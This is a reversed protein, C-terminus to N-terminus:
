LKKKPITYGSLRNRKGNKLSSCWRFKSKSSNKHGTGFRDHATGFKDHATGSSGHATGFKHKPYSLSANQKIYHDNTRYGERGGGIERGGGMQYGKGNAKGM